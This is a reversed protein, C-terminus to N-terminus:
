LLRIFSSCADTRCICIAEMCYALTEWGTHRSVTLHPALNHLYAYDGGKKSYYIAALEPLYLSLVSSLRVVFATWQGCAGNSVGVWHTEGWLCTQSRRDPDHCPYPLVGVGQGWTCLSAVTPTTSGRRGSGQVPSPRASTSTSWGPPSSGRTAPTSTSSGGTAPKSSGRTALALASAVRAASPSAAATQHSDVDWARRRLAPTSRWPRPTCWHAQDVAGRGPGWCCTKRRDLGSSAIPGAHPSALVLGPRPWAGNAPMVGPHCNKRTTPGQSPCLCTVLNCRGQLPSPTLLVNQSPPGSSLCTTGYLGPFTVLSLLDIVAWQYGANNAASGPSRPTAGPPGDGDDEDEKGWSTAQRESTHAPGTHASAGCQPIARSLFIVEARKAEQLADDLARRYCAKCAAAPRRPVACPPLCAPCPGGPRSPQVLPLRTPHPAGSWGPRTWRSTGTWRSYGWRVM